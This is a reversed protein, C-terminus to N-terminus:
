LEPGSLQPPRWRLVRRELATILFEAALAVAGMIFM